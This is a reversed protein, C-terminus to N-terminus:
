QIPPPNYAPPSAPRGRIFAIHVMANISTFPDFQEDNFSALYRTFEVGPRIVFSGGSIELSVASGTAVLSGGLPGFIEDDDAAITTYYTTSGFLAGTIAFNDSLEITAILPLRVMTGNIVILSQAGVSPAVALHLGNAQLIRVKADVELALQGMGVRGGVEFNDTIGVHHTLEPFVSPLQARAVAGNDDVYEYTTASFTVGTASEGKALTRASHYNGALLCGTAAGGLGFMWLAFVARKIWHMM